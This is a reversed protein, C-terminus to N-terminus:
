NKPREVWKIPCNGWTKRVHRRHSRIQSENTVIYGEGEITYTGDANKSFYFMPEGWSDLPELLLYFYGGIKKDYDKESVFCRANGTKSLKKIRMSGTM